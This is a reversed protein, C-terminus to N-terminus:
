LYAILWDFDVLVLVLWWNHVEFVLLFTAATLYPAVILEFLCVLEYLSMLDCLYCYHWGSVIVVVLDLLTPVSDVLRAWVSVLLLLLWLFYALLFHLRFYVTLLFFIYGDLLQSVEVFQINIINWSTSIENQLMPFFNIKCTYRPRDLCLPTSPLIGM